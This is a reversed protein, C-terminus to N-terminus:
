GNTIEKIHKILDESQFHDRILWPDDPNGMVTRNEEIWKILEEALHQRGEQRYRYRTYLDASHPENM